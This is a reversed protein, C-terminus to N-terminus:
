KTKAGKRLNETATIVQLNDEHHLGGKSLPIIHDVHYKIGTSKELERAEKYLEMIKEPNADDPTQNLKYARRKASKAAMQEKNSKRYQRSWEARQGKTRTRYELKQEAIKEKNAINWKKHYEANKEKNITHYQKDYIAKAEKNRDRYQKRCNCCISQLGDNKTKDKSFENSHKQIKCTSCLKM